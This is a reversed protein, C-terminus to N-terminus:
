MCMCMCMGICMHVDHIYRVKTGMIPISANDQPHEPLEAAYLDHDSPAIYDPLAAALIINVRKTLLHVLLQLKQEIDEDNAKESLLQLADVKGACVCVCVCLSSFVFTMTHQEKHSTVTSFSSFVCISWVNGSEREGEGESHCGRM